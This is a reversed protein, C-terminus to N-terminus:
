LYSQLDLSTETPPLSAAVSAMSTKLDAGEGCGGQFPSPAPCLHISISQLAFSFSGPFSMSFFSGSLFFLYFIIIYSCEQSSSDILVM